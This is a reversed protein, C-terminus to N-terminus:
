PQIQWNIELEGHEKLYDNIKSFPKTGFFGRHASLPSPHPSEIVFHKNRDIFAGKKQAYSGWLVFVINEKEKNLHEIIRNTFKEWGQGQHSAAKGEEVTLVSNLLLVGQEAWSTLCGHKPIEIGLDNKLEKFINKLSPPFRVGKQVSFCLGHAQGEGHYPDQGLIVVKVQDFPTLNLAAFYDSGNPFIQKNQKNEKELFAKLSLMYEEQFETSLRKKWSQELIINAMHEVRIRVITKNTSKLVFM